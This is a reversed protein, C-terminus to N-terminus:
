FRSTKQTKKYVEDNAIYVFFSAFFVGAKSNNINRVALGDKNPLITWFREPLRM